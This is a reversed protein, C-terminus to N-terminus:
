DRLATGCEDKNKQRNSKEQKPAEKASHSRRFKTPKPSGKRLAPQYSLRRYKIQIKDSYRV